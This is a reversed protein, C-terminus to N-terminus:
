SCNCPREPLLRALAATRLPRIARLRRPSRLPQQTGRPQLAAGVAAGRCQLLESLHVDTALEKLKSALATVPDGSPFSPSGSSVFPSPTPESSSLSIDPRAQSAPLRSSSARPRRELDSWQSWPAAAGRRDTLRGVDVITSSGIDIIRRTYAMVLPPAPPLVM